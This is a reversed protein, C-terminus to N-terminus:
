SEPDGALWSCAMQPTILAAPNYTEEVGDGADNRDVLDVEPTEEAPAEAATTEAVTEEAPAEAATKKKSM